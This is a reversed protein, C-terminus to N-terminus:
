CGKVATAASAASITAGCAWTSIAITSLISPTAGPAEDAQLADLEQATTYATYGAILNDTSNMEMGRKEIMGAIDRM